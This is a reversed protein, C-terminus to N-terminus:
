QINISLLRWDDGDDSMKVTWHTRLNANFGNVADVYGSVTWENGIGNTVRYEDFSWPFSASSPSKLHERVFAQAMTIPWSKRDDNTRTVDSGGSRLGFVLMGVFICLALVFSNAGDAKPKAVANNSNSIEAAQIPEELDIPSTPESREAETQLYSEHRYTTACSTTQLARKEVAIPV